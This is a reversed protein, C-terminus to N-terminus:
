LLYADDDSRAAIGRSVLGGDVVLPGVSSDEFVFSVLGFTKSRLGLM